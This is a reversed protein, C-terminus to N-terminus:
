SFQGLAGILNDIRQPSPIAASILRRRQAPQLNTFPLRNAHQDFRKAL